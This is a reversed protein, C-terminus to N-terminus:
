RSDHNKPFLTNHYNDEIFKILELVSKDSISIDGVTNKYAKIGIYTKIEKVLEKRTMGTDEM